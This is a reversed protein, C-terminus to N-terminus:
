ECMYTKVKKGNITKKADNRWKCSDGSCKCTLKTGTKGLSKKLCTKHFSPFKEGKFKGDKGMFNTGDPQNWRFNFFRRFSFKLFWSPGLKLFTVSNLPIISTLLVFYQTIKGFKLYKLINESDQKIFWINYCKSNRSGARLFVHNWRM